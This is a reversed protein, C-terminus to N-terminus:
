RWLEERLEPSLRYRSARGVGVKQIKKAALWHRLRRIASTRSCGLLEEIGQRSIWDSPPAPTARRAREPAPVRKGGESLWAYAEPSALLQLSHEGAGHWTVSGSEVEAHVLTDKRRVRVYPALWRNAKTMLKALRPDHVAADYRTLGFCGFILETVHVSRKKRFAVMLNCLSQSIVSDTRDERAVEVRSSPLHVSIGRNPVPAHALSDLSDVLQKFRDPVPAASTELAEALLPPMFGSVLHGRHQVLRSFKAAAASNDGDRRAYLYDLFLAEYEFLPSIRANGRSVGGTLAQVHRDDVALFLGIWRLSNELLMADEPTLTGEINAVLDRAVRLTKELLPPTPQELWAWLWLYLREIRDSLRLRPDLDESVLLFTLTRLMFPSLYGEPFAALMRVARSVVPETSEEWHFIALEALWAKHYAAQLGRSPEAILSALAQLDGRRLAKRIHLAQAQGEIEAAWAEDRHLAIHAEFDELVDGYDYDLSEMALCLDIQALAREQPKNAARVAGNFFYLAKSYNAGALSNLGSQFLLQFSPVLSMSRGLRSLENLYSDAEELRGERTLLSVEFLLFDLADSPEVGDEILLRFRKGLADETSLGLSRSKALYASHTAQVAGSRRKEWLAELWTKFTVSM